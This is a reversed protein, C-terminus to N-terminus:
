PLAWDLWCDLGKILVLVKFSQGPREEGGGEPKLPPQGAEKIVGHVRCSNFPTWEM